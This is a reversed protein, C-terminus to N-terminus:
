VLYDVRWIIFWLLFYLLGHGNWSCIDLTSSYSWGNRVEASCIPSHGTERRPRNDRPRSFLPSHPGWLREPRKSFSIFKTVGAPIGENDLGYGLWM